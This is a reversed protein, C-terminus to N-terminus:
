AGPLAGLWLTWPRVSPAALVTEHWPDAALRGHVAQEDAGRVVLMTSEGEHEGVPGGLLVFGEEALADMFAAHEDWADQARRARAPDYAPGNRREVLFLGSM